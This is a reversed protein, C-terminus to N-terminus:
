QGNVERGRVRTQKAPSGAKKWGFVWVAFLEVVDLDLHGLSARSDEGRFAM